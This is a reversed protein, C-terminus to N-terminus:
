NESLSIAEEVSAEAKLGKAVKRLEQLLDEGLQDSRQRLFELVVETFTQYTQVSKLLHDTRHALGILNSATTSLDKMDRPSLSSKQDRILEQLDQAISLQTELLDQVRAQRDTRSGPLSAPTLPQSPDYM